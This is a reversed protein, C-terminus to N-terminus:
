KLMSIARDLAKSKFHKVSENVPTTANNQLYKGAAKMLNNVYKPDTVPQGGQDFFTIKGQPDTVSTFGRLNENGTLEGLDGHGTGSFTQSTGPSNGAGPTAAQSPQVDTPIHMAGRADINVSGAPDYMTQIQPAANKSLERVSGSDANVEYINGHSGQLYTIKHGNMEGGNYVTYTDPPVLQNAGQLISAVGHLANKLVNGGAGVAAGIAAGKAGTKLAAKGAQKWNVDKLGKDNGKLQNYVDKAGGVAGGVVGGKVAGAAGATLAGTILPAIGGAGIAAVGGTAAILALAAAVSIKPHLKVWNTAKSIFGGVAKGAGTQALSQVGQGVKGAAGAVTDGVKRIANAGGASVKNGLTQSQQPPTATASSPVDDVDSSSLDQPEAQAPAPQPAPQKSAAKRQAYRERRRVNRPDNSLVRAEILNNIAEEFLAENDYEVGEATAAVDQSIQQQQQQVEPSNLMAQLQQPDQAAAQLKKYGEPDSQAAKALVMKILPQLLANKVNGLAQSGKQKITDWLGEQVLYAEFAAVDKAFAESLIDNYQIQKYKQELLLSTRDRM